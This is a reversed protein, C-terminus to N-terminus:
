MAQMSGLALRRRPSHAREERENGLRELANSPGELVAFKCIDLTPMAIGRRRKRRQAETPRNEKAQKKGSELSQSAIPRRHLPWKFARGSLTIQWPGM